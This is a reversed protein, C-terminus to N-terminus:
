QYTKQRNYRLTQETVFYDVNWDSSNPAITQRNYVHFDGELQVQYIKLQM